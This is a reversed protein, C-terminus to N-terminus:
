RLIEQYLQIYQDVAKGWDHEKAWRYNDELDVARCRDELYKQRGLLYGLKDTIVCRNKIENPIKADGLVIAPKKCAMAEIIPLGYGELWTPFVFATLSNYFDVLANDPVRGLFKIRADNGALEKLLSADPGTGGIVLEASDCDKFAEILLNVRKRRDLQGLYGLRFIGDQRAAPELDPRIGSRIVTIREEPINLYEILEQKTKDSVAVVGACKSAMRAAIAFYRTGVFNKWKSYGIGSGLKDPDTIQFLDHFTVVSRNKPLWIAEMPTIAHYVDAKPLKFPIQVATYFFYSYLSDGTTSVRQVSHGKALLGREIEMGVRGIGANKFNFYRSVLCVRMRVDLEM